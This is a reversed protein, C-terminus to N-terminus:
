LALVRAPFVLVVLKESSSAVSFIRWALPAWREDTRLPAIAPCREIWGFDILDADVAHRVSEMAEDLEGVFAYLEANRQHFLVRLRGRAESARRVMFARHEDALSRDATLADGISQYTNARATGTPGAPGGWTTFRARQADGFGATLDLPGLAAYARPWDGLLAHARSLEVRSQSVTPDLRLAIELRM